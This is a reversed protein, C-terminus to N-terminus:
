WEWEGACQDDAHLAKLALGEANSNEEKRLRWSGVKIGLGGLELVKEHLRKLPKWNPIKRKQEDQYDREAWTWIHRNMMEILYLCDTMLIVEKILSGSSCEEEIRELAENAGHLAATARNAVQNSMFTIQFNTNYDQIVTMLLQWGKLQPCRPSPSACPIRLLGFELLQASSHPLAKPTVAM